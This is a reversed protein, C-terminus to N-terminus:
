INYENGTEFVDPISANTKFGAPISQNLYDIYPNIIYNQVAAGDSDNITPRDPSKYVVIVRMGIKHALETTKAVVDANNQGAWNLEMRIWKAGLGNSLEYLVPGAFQSLPQNGTQYIGGTM